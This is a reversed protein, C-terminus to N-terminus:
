GSGEILLRYFRVGDALASVAIRENTGHIRARDSGSVSIPIFRYIQDTLQAYFRSDTGGVVLYPVM